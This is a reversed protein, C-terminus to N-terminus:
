FYVDAAAISHLGRAGRLVLHGEADVDEFIGHLLERGTRATIEEGRRAAHALWDRRIPEFGFQVFQRELVAYHSALTMLFDECAVDIGLATALAVPRLADPEVAAPEPASRLNVGIGIALCGAPGPSELLIGAVKGGNLLVDNPWKLSFSVPKATVEEFARFLALSMVFSRLAMQAPPESLQLLLTAAFNGEPMLWPRGRRGRAATQRHALVWFPASRDRALRLAEDLTSGVEAVVIRGYGEPWSM